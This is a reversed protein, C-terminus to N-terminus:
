DKVACDCMEHQGSFHGCSPDVKCEKAIHGFAMCKFCQLVKVYDSFNCTSYRLYIRGMRLLARRVSPPVELVCSVTRSNQRPAYKYVVKIEAAENCDLNQAVLEKEIEERSMEAPIGHVILRPNSKVIEIVKLGCINLSLYQGVACM